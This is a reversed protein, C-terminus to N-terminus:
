ALFYKLLSVQIFCLFREVCQTAEPSKKMKNRKNEKLVDDKHNPLM